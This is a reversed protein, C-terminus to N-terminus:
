GSSDEQSDKNARKYGQTAPQAARITNEHEVFARIKEINDLILKAKAYGFQFPYKQGKNLVIMPKGNYLETDYKIPIKETNNLTEM